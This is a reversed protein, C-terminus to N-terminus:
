LFPAPSFSIYARAPPELKAAVYTQLRVDTRLRRELGGFFEVSISTSSRDIGKEVIFSNEDSNKTGIYEPTAELHCNNKSAETTSSNTWGARYINVREVVEGRQIFIPRTTRDLVLYPRM